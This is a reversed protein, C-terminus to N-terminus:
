RAAPRDIETVGADRHFLSRRNLWVVIVAVGVFFLNDWPQADPFLPNMMQFHFLVSILLSGKSANFMPTLIVSMAIIGLFYPGVAWATQPMGSIFFSPIHWLAWIVGLILGAWFPAFKRQLLPLALGRWGIEEIPGLVLAHGLAPLALVWPSFPFATDLTGKFAAGAFVVAPMGVLLFLWWGLPMRWFTLRRLLGGLGRLGTKWLVLVVGAIGPSYIALLTLPNSMTVEGFIAVIQDYFLFLLAALGWTLGFTLALFPALSPTNSTTKPKALKRADTANVNM